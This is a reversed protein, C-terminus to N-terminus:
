TLTPLHNARIETGLTMHRGFLDRQYRPAIFVMSQQYIITFRAREDAHMQHQLNLFQLNSKDLENGISATTVSPM